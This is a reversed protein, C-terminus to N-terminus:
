SVVILYLLICFHRQTKRCVLGCFCWVVAKLCRTFGTMPLTVATNALAFMPLILLCPKHHNKCYIRHIKEDGKGFPIAFTLLVGSITAHIGSHLM